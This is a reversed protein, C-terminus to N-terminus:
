CQRDNAAIKITYVCKVCMSYNITKKKKIQLSNEFKRVVFFEFFLNM